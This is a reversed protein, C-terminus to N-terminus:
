PVLKGGFVMKFLNVYYEFGEVVDEGFEEIKNGLDNENWFNVVDDSKEVMAGLVVGQPLGIDLTPILEGIAIVSNLQNISPNMKSLHFWIFAIFLPNSLILPITQLVTILRETQLEKKEEIIPCNPKKHGTRGCESCAM